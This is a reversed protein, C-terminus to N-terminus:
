WYKVAVEVSEFAKPRQELIRRMHSLAAMATGEVVDIVIVGHVTRRKSATLRFSVFPRM